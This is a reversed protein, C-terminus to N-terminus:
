LEWECYPTCIPTEPMDSYDNMFSLCAILEEFEEAERISAIFALSFGLAIAKGELVIRLERM